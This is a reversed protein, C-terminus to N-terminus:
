KSTSQSLDPEITLVQGADVISNEQIGLKSQMRINTNASNFQIKQGVRLM